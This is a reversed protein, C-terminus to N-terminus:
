KLFSTVKLNNNLCYVPIQEVYRQIAEVFIELPPQPLRQFVIKRIKKRLTPPPPPYM